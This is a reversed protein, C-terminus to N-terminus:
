NQLISLKIILFEKKYVFTNGKQYINVYPSASISLFIFYLNELRLNMFDEALCLIEM